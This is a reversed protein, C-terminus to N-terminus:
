ASREVKSKNAVGLCNHHGLTQGQERRVTHSHPSTRSTASYDSQEVFSFHRLRAQIISIGSFLPFNISGCSVPHDDEFIRKLRRGSRPSTQGPLGWCGSWGVEFRAVQTAMGEIARRM